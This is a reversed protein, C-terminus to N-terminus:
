EKPPVHVARRYWGQTLKPESANAVYASTITTQIHSGIVVEQKLQETEGPEIELDVKVPDRVGNAALTERALVSEGLSWAFYRLKWVVAHDFPPNGGTTAAMMRQFEDRSELDDSYRAGVDLRRNKCFEESEALQKEPVASDPSNGANAKVHIAAGTSPQGKCRRESARTRESVASPRDRRRRRRISNTLRLWARVEDETM